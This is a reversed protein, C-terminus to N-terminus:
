ITVGKATAVIRLAVVDDEIRRKTHRALERALENCRAVLKVQADRLRTIETDRVDLLVKVRLKLEGIDKASVICREALAQRQTREADLDHTLADIEADLDHCLAAGSRLAYVAELPLTTM